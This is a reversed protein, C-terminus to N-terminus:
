NNYPKYCGGGRGGDDDGIGTVSRMSMDGSGRFAAGKTTCTSIEDGLGKDDGASMM